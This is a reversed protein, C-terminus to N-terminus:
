VHARGIQRRDCRIDPHDAGDRQDRPDADHHPVDDRDRQALLDRGVRQEAAGVRDVAQQCPAHLREAREETPQETLDETQPHHEQDGTDGRQQGQEAEEDHRVLRDVSGLPGDGRSRRGLRATRAALLALVVAALDAVADIVRVAGAQALEDGAPYGWTVGLTDLGNARAGRVDYSRDGVMIAPGGAWGVERLARAITASKPEQSEFDPGVVGDLLPALGFREVVIRASPLPKSTAVWLVCGAARLLTLQEPIGDFVTQEDIGDTVYRERYFAIADPIREAPVGFALFSDAVPPGVFSRLDAASPVPVGLRTFAHAVCATVGPASDMLTGDLDLLVLNV